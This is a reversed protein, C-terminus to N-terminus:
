KKKVLFSFICRASWNAVNFGLGLRGSAGPDGEEQPRFTAPALSGTRLSGRQDQIIAPILRLGHCSPQFFQHVPLSSATCFRSSRSFIDPHSRGRSCSLVVEWQHYRPEPFITFHGDADHNAAHANLSTIKLHFVLCDPFTGKYAYTHWTSEFM